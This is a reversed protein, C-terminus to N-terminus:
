ARPADRRVEWLKGKGSLRGDPPIVLARECDEAGAAALALLSVLGCRRRRGVVRAPM